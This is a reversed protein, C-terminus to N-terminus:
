EQHIRLTTVASRGLAQDRQRDTNVIQTLKQATAVAQEAMERVGRTFFLLWAEWDGETRTRHLLEYYQQRNSKFYLSLYLLPETLIREHCLLLTILRRGLRGNGDLFPHITEFQVQALAAKLLVPMAVPQDHLFLELKGMCDMIMEPPPPIFMANGPRSGGIWNQSRRFEGPEKETGRGQQLLIAHIERFLRLSLPFGERIRRLGHNM